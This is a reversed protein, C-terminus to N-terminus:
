TERKKERYVCPPLVQKAVEEPVGIDIMYLYADICQSVAKYYVTDTAQEHLDTPLEWSNPWTIRLPM